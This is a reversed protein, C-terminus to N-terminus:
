IKTQFHGFLHQKLDKIHEQDNGTIVIDDVYVVSNIVKNLSSHKFFVYHYTESRIMAFQQIVKSFKTFWSRPSQKLGYLSKQLM